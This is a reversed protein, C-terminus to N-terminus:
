LIANPNSSVLRNAAHPPPPPPEVAVDVVDGDVGGVELGPGVSVLMEMVGGVAIMVLPRVALREAVPVYLSPVLASRVWRAVQADALGPTTAILAVVPTAVPAAAPLVAIVADNEPTVEGVAVIVTVAAVSVPMLMVGVAGDVGLPVGTM